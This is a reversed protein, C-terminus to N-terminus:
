MAGLYIRGEFARLSVEDPSWDNGNIAYNSLLLRMNQPIRQGITQPKFTTQHGTFNLIVLAIEPRTADIDHWSRVFAFVEENEHDVLEFNGYIMIENEKRVKLARRWFGLVSDPDDKQSSVTWEPSDKNVRMWPEGTTFGSHKTSDWQMPTRANDRAKRQLWGMVDSMDSGKGDELREKLIRKYYNISAIDKYEEIGWSKPVNKMGIEEGQYVYLTGSQSIQFLALLMSSIARYQDSDDGFRSVSRAIDHNEIFVSNWFGDSRLFNQWKNISLKVDKLKWDKPKIHEAVSDIHALEFQFVM